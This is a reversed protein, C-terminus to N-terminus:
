VVGVVGFRLAPPAEGLLALLGPRQHRPERRILGVLLGKSLQGAGHGLPQGLRQLPLERHATEQDDGMQTLAVGFRQEHREHMLPFANAKVVRM